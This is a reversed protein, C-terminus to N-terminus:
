HQDGPLQLDIILQQGVAVEILHDKVLDCRPTVDLTHTLLILVSDFHPLGLLRLIVVVLLLQLTVVVLRPRLIVVVLWPHLNIFRVLGRFAFHQTILCVCLYLFL